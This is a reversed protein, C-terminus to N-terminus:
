RRRGDSGGSLRNAFRLVGKLLELSGSVQNAGNDFVMEDLVISSLEGVFLTTDDVFLIDAASERGTRIRQNASMDEGARISRTLTRGFVKNVIQKANGIAAASADPAGASLGLGLTLIIAAFKFKGLM